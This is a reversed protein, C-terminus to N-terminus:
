NSPSSGPCTRCGSQNQFASGASATQTETERCIPFASPIMLSSIGFQQSHGLHWLSPFVLLTLRDPGTRDAAMNSTLESRTRREPGPGPPRTLSAAAPYRPPPASSASPHGAGWSSLEAGMPPPPGAPPRACSSSPSPAALPCRAWSSPSGLGNQTTRTRTQIRESGSQKRNGKLNFARM